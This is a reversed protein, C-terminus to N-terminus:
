KHYQKHIKYLDYFLKFFYSKSVKSDGYEIWINLPVELFLNFSLQNTKIIQKARFFLEVDFLWKSIFPKEFLEKSISRNFVKCGCQTDYVKLQLSTSILTAIARGILYRLYNRQITAGLRLIRSGFVFGIENEAYASLRECESLPTALDADLFAIKNFNFNKFCYNVATRISESKGLNFENQILIAKESNSSCYQVLLNYTNDTSKDDVFVALM